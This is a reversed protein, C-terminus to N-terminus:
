CGPPPTSVPDGQDPAGTGTPATPSIVPPAPLLTSPERLGGYLREYGVILMLLGLTVTFVLGIGLLLVGLLMLTTAVLLFWSFGWPHRNAVRRSLQLAPWFDLGKDVILLPAFLWAVVLYFYACMGALGVATGILLASLTAWAPLLLPDQQLVYAVALLVAFGLLAPIGVVAYAVTQLLQGAILQGYRPGFPRFLTTLRLPQGRLHEVLLLLFGTHLPTLVLFALVGGVFPLLLSLGWSALWGAATLALGLAGVGLLPWPARTFWAWSVHWIEGVPTSLDRTPLQDPTWSETADPLVAGLPSWESRGETWVLTDASVVGQEVLRNFEAHTLPGVMTHDCVYFWAM